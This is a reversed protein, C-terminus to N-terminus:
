PRWSRCIVGGTLAFFMSVLGGLAASLALAGVPDPPATPRNWNAALKVGMWAMMATAVGSLEFAVATTFFLREITGTLWSPVGTGISWPLTGTDGAATRAAVLFARIRNLVFKTVLHGVVLAWTLGLLWYVVIRWTM